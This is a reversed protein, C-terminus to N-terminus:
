QLRAKIVMDDRRDAGAASETAQPGPTEIALGRRALSELMNNFDAQMEILADSDRLQILEVPKGAAVDRMARRFHYIPGAVRHSFRAADWAFAPVLVLFCIWLPYYETCFRGYQEVLNGKGEALLRWCFLVNWLTLQYVAWYGVVRAVLKYQFHDVLRRRRPERNQNM